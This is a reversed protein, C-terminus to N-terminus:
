DAVTEGSYETESEDDRQDDPHEPASFLGTGRATLEEAIERCTREVIEYVREFGPLEGYWPDPVDRDGTTVPDSDRFLRVKEPYRTLKKLRRVHGRDMGYIVDFYELEATKLQRAPHDIVVGHRSAVRRMREDANEGVHYADLGCSEIEFLDANGSEDVRHQLVAHALPSRCINGTCVFLVRTKERSM